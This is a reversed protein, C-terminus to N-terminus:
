TDTAMAMAMDAKFNTEAVRWKCWCFFFFFDIFSGSRSNCSDCRTNPNDLKDSKLTNKSKPVLFM